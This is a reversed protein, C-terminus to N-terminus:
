ITKQIVKFNYKQLIKVIHILDSQDVEPLGAIGTNSPNSSAIANQQVSENPLNSVNMGPTSAKNQDM